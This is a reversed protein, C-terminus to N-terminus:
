FYRRWAWLKRAKLYHRNYDNFYAEREFSINLYAKNRDKLKILKVVYELLYMLYFPLILLELQQRLHIREHVVLRCTLQTDTAILVFPYLTIASAFGGTIYHVLGTRIFM